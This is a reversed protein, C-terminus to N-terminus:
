AHICNPPPYVTQIKWLKSHWPSSFQKRSKMGLSPSRTTSIHTQHVKQFAYGSLLQYFEWVISDHTHLVNNFLFDTHFQFVRSYPTTVVFHRGNNHSTHFTNISPLLMYITMPPAAQHTLTFTWFQSQFLWCNRLLNWGVLM